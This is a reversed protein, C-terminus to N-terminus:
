SGDAIAERYIREQREVVVRWSLASAAARGGDSLRQQARKDGLLGAVAAHVADVDYSIVLAGEDGMFEAVGCRDTVIVPTGAAAAEAAAMGFSEGASPLVFVDADGYLDLPRLKPELRHVRGALQPDLQAEGVAASVGHGDDPGVLALHMDPLRKTTELLLEIGKGAAIRGVYLVLPEDGIGLARRLEGSRIRTAAPVPFGNGRVRIRDSPAGGAVLEAREHESTVVIAAARKPLWGLVTSDLARKLRLKRVRPMFMGLPEFVYPIGRAVCWSAVATGVPDRFGFVHAVDPRRVQALWIPISPTIGMWRYRAPTALYHVLAGDVKATTTRATRGSAVDQLSTTLVEVAHGREVLGGNLERAMWIPGGFSVAPWYAPAAFLVGLPHSASVISVNAKHAM